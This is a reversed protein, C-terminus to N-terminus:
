KLRIKMGPTIRNGLNNLLKIKHISIKYKKAISWLSEGSKVVHVQAAGQSRNQNQAYIVLKQGPYIKTGKMKNWSKIEKVTVDYRLAIKFISEGGKVRHDVRKGKPITPLTKSIVPQKVKIQKKIKIKQGPYIRSNRMNNIRKLTSLTVSYKKSILYLSEGSKVTHLVYNGKPALVPQDVGDVGYLKIRQGVYLVSKLSLSNWSLLKQMSVGFKRAINYLNDGSRVRYTKYSTDAKQGKTSKKKKKTIKKDFKKTSAKTVRDYKTASLPIVLMQRAWIKSGRISNASKLASVTVGYKRAIAGLSEGWSVRHRVWKVLKKKDMKAYAKSFEEARGKPVRLEFSRLNPPTCWRRVEPNIARMVSDSVNIMKAAVDLSMCHKITVSETESRVQTEIGTIGFKEPYHGIITAAIIRPVYRMTERPLPLKWYDKTGHKRILRRVRTEGCNYAAFSLYWDGFENNLRTLYQIAADTARDPNRRGDFWYDSKLKYRRGTARIFQWIGSASASSYAKVKFGSEILSQYIIDTPMNNDSLKTKIMVEYRTMRSLSGQMFTPVKTSLYKLEHLVRDNIVIPMDFVSYDISDAVFDEFSTFANEEVEMQEEPFVFEPEVIMSETSNLYVEELVELIDDFLQLSLVAVSDNLNPEKPTIKSLVDIAQEFHMEASLWDKEEINQVGVEYLDIAMELSYNVTEVEAVPPASSCSIFFVVITILSLFTKMPLM